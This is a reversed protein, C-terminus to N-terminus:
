EQSASSSEASLRRVSKRIWFASGLIMLFSVVAEVKFNVLTGFPDGRKIEGVLLVITLGLNFCGIALLAIQGYLGLVVQAPSQVTKRKNFYSRMREM